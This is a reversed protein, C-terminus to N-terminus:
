RVNLCGLLKGKSMAHIKGIVVGTAYGKFFDSNREADTKSAAEEEVKANGEMVAKNIAAVCESESWKVCKLFAPVKCRLLMNDPSVWYPKTNQVTSANNGEVVQSAPPTEQAVSAGVFLAVSFIGVRLRHLMKTIEEKRVRLLNEGRLAAM